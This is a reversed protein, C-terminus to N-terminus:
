NKGSYVGPNMGTVTSKAGAFGAVARLVTLDNRRGKNINELM